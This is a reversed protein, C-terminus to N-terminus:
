NGVRESSAQGVWVWGACARVWGGICRVSGGSEGGSGWVAETHVRPLGRAVDEDLVAIVKVEAFIHPRVLNCPM